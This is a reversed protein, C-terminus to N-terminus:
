FQTYLFPSYGNSVVFTIVLLFVLLYVLDMGFRRIASERVLKQEVIKLLPTCLVTALLMVPWFMLINLSRLNEAGAWGNAGFLASFFPKWDALNTLRFIGWGLMILALSYLHQLIRPAKKLLRGWAGSELALLLGFYTGWIIFNWGAGHWLGTLLFVIVLSSPQRLFREKKRAFELPIFVYTRFWATLTMHWRRWFDSISRSIYPYNFNEPLHFGLMMGLGIAMDTYGAFDFFIQLTYATLGFWAVGAGYSGAQAQFVREAVIALTDAILVKKVLGVIFRRVGAALAERSTTMSDLAIKVQGIRTIPGQLLRPFMVLFNSFKLLNREAPTVSQSVDVLYSIGSFTFYSIGVQLGVRVLEGMTGDGAQWIGAFFSLYKYFFLLGLNLLVGARTLNKVAVVKRNERSRDILLGFAYNLLVSLLLVPLHTLDTWAFFVLSGLLLVANRYGTRRLLLYLILFSPLFIFLFHLSSFSM